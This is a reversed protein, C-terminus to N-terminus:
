SAYLSFNTAKFASQMGPLGNIISTSSTVGRHCVRAVRAGAPRTAFFSRERKQRSCFQYNPARDQNGPTEPFFLTRRRVMKEHACFGGGSWVFFGFWGSAASFLAMQSRDICVQGGLGADLEEALHDADAPKLLPAQAGILGLFDAAKEVEIDALLGHGDTATRQHAGVVVHDGRVAIVTVRDRDAHIGLGEHGLDVALDGAAGLALAPRHM